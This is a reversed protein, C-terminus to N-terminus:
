VPEKITTLQTLAYWCRRFNYHHYALQEDSTVESLMWLMEHWLFYRALIPLIMMEASLLSLVVEYGTQVLQLIEKPQPRGEGGIQNIWVRGSTIALDCIKPALMITDFDFLGSIHGDDFKLNHQQLDGHIISDPQLIAEHQRFLDSFEAFDNTFQSVVVAQDALDPFPWVPLTLVKELQERTMALEQDFRWREKIKGKDFHDLCKHLEGMVQGIAEIQERSLDGSATGPVFPFLVAYLWTSGIKVKRVLKGTRDALPAVVPLGQQSLFTVLELQKEIDQRRHARHRYLRLVFRGTGARFAFIANQWSGFFDIGEEVQGLHYGQAIKQLFDTTVLHQITEYFHAM